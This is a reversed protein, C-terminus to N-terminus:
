EDYSSSSHPCSPRRRAWLPTNEPGRRLSDIHQLASQLHRGGDIHSTLHYGTESAQIFATEAECHVNVSQYGRMVAPGPGRALHHTRGVMRRRIRIEKTAEKLFSFPLLFSQM